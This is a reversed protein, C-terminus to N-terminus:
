EQKITSTNSKTAVQIMSNMFATSEPWSSKEKEYYPIAEGSKGAQQLMFGYEAYVGPAVPKHTKESTKIIEQLSASLEGAKSPDKYSDYLSSEYDGWYYKTPAACGTVAFAFLFGLILNIRM